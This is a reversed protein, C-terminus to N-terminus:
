LFRQGLYRTYKENHKDKDGSGHRKFGQIVGNGWGNFWNFDIVSMCKILEM